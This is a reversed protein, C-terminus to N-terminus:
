EEEAQEVSEDADEDEEDDENTSEETVVPADDEDDEEGDEGPQEKALKAYDLRAGRTRRSGSDIINSPDIDKMEDQSIELEDQDEVPQTDASTSAM